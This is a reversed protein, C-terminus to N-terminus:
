IVTIRVHKQVCSDLVHTVANQVVNDHIGIPKSLICIKKKKDESDFFTTVGVGENSYKEFTSAYHLIIIRSDCENRRM